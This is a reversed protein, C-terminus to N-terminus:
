RDCRSALTWRACAAACCCRRGTPKDNAHLQLVTAAKPQRPRSVVLGPGRGRGHTAPKEDVDDRRVGGRLRRTLAAQPRTLSVSPACAYGTSDRVGRYRAFRLRSTGSFRTICLRTPSRRRPRRRQFWRVWRYLPQTRPAHRSSTLAHTPRPMPPASVAPPARGKAAGVQLALSTTTSNDRLTEAQASRAAALEVDAANRCWAICRVLTAVARPIDRMCRLAHLPPDNAHAANTCARRAPAPLRSPWRALSRAAVM